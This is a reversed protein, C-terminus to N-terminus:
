GVKARIGTLHETRKANECGQNGKVIESKKSGVLARGQGQNRINRGEQISRRKPKRRQNLPRACPIQVIGSRGGKGQLSRRKVTRWGSQNRRMTRGSVFNGKVKVGAPDTKERDLDPFVNRIHKRDGGKEWAEGRYTMWRRKELASGKKKHGKEVAERSRCFKKRTKRERLDTCGQVTKRSRM